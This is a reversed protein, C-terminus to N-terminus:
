AQFQGLAKDVAELTRDADSKSFLLPPRLKLVQDYRGSTGTIVGQEVVLSGLHRLQESSLTVVRAGVNPRREVLHCSELRNIAERIVARSVQYKTSLETESLKSGSAIIGEVIDARLQVFTKDAATVPQEAFVPISSM